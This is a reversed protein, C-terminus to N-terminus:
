DKEREIEANDKKLNEEYEAKSKRLYDRDIKYEIPEDSPLSKIMRFHNSM